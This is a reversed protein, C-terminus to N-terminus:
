LLMASAVADAKDRGALQEALSLSFAPAAGPGRGTTIDGDVAVADPVFIVKEPFMSEMGPYCTAKRGNLLGWAGLTMVPAACIAAVKKGAAVMTEALIKAQASGGLNKAGPMGGPFVLLDFGDATVSALDRDAQFALGHAGPVLTGGLGAVTVEIGARRLVDIPTAAEVEEFGPALLVLAKKTM